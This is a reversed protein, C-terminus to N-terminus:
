PPPWGTPELFGCVIQDRGSRRTAAAAAITVAPPMDSSTPLSANFGSRCALGETWGAGAVPLTAAAVGLRTAAEAAAVASGLVGAARETAEV